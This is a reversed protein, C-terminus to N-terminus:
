CTCYEVHALRLPYFTEFSTFDSLKYRCTMPGLKFEALEVMLHLQMM